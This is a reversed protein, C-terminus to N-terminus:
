GADTRAPARAADDGLDRGDRREGGAPLDLRRDDPLRGPPAGLGAAAPVRRARRALARDDPADDRGAAPHLARLHELSRRTTPAARPSRAVPSSSRNDTSSWAIARRSERASSRSRARPASSRSRARRSSTATESSTSSRAPPGASSPLLPS